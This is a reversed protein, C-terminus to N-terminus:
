CHRPFSTCPTHARLSPSRTDEAQSQQVSADRPYCRQCVLDVALGLGAASAACSHVFGGGHFRRQNLSGRFGEDWAPHERDEDTSSWRKAPAIRFRGFATKLLNAKGVDCVKESAVAYRRSVADPLNLILKQHMQLEGELILRSEERKGLVSLVSGGVDRRGDSAESLMVDLCDGSLM